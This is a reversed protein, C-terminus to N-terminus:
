MQLAIARLDAVRPVVAPNTATLVIKVAFYKYGTYTTDGSTYQVQGMEGSKTATSPAFTFEKYNDRNAVSSYV